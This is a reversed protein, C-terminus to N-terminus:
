ANELVGEVFALFPAFTAQYFTQTLDRPSRTPDWAVFRADFPIVVPFHPAAQDRPEFNFADLDSAEAEDYLNEAFLEHMEDAFSEIANADLEAKTLVCKLRNRWDLDGGAQAFRSLTALLYRYGEITQQQPTGFLLVTAGLGLLPGATIESLGARADVLVLDYDRRKTFRDVLEVVQERPSIARDDSIDETLARALKPLYNGPHEVSQLGSAPLVHVLGNGSTLGSIGIFDEMDGDRVGGIGNEVLYDLVGFRPRRDKELLLSGVGPAELDLDIVLVNRARSAQEAAAVALATSRGVGGKLSAFVLRPPGEATPAPAGLWDAAAVRRDLLQVVLDGGVPVVAASKLADDFIREAGPANRDALVRDPRAYAGLRDRIRETLVAIRDEDLEQKVFAALRGSADRVFVVDETSVVGPEERLAHVLVSLSEDFRVLVPEVM